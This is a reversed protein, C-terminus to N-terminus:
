SRESRRQLQRKAVRRFRMMKAANLRYRALNSTPPLEFGGVLKHPVVVWGDDDRQLDGRVQFNRQWRFDPAHDHAALCAPGPQAPVGLAGSGIHVRRAGRDVSIPVRVSFPFGDPAVLALVAEPYREGPEDMRED